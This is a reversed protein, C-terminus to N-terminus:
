QDKSRFKDQMSTTILSGRPTNKRRLLFLALGLAAALLGIGGYTLIREVSDDAAPAAVPPNSDKVSIQVVVPVSNTAVAPIANNIVVPPNGKANVVVLPLNTKLEAVPVADAPVPLSNSMGAENTSVHTGVIFLSIPPPPPPATSVIVVPPNTVPPKTEEPLPPFQPLTVPVPPFDVMGGTFKGEQSRLVIIVPQKLEKRGSATQRLMENIGDYPSWDIQETGDCFILITLRRSNAIVRGIIPQMASLNASGSYHLAQIYAILNTTLDPANEASWETLPFGEPKLKSGITWVAINDGDSIKGSFDTAFLTKIGAAVAPLRKKMASSTGFVLLWRQKQAQAQLGSAGCFIFLLAISVTKAPSFKM